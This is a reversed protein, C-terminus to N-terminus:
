FFFFFYSMHTGNGNSIVKKSERNHKGSRKEGVQKIDKVADQYEKRGNLVEIKVKYEGDEM